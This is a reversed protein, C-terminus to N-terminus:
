PHEKDAKMVVIEFDRLGVGSGEGGGPAHLALTVVDPQQRSFIHSPPLTLPGLVARSGAQARISLPSGDPLYADLGQAQGYGTLTFVVEVTLNGETLNVLNLEGWESLWWWATQLQQDPALNMGLGPAVIVTAPDGRPRLLRTTEFTEV